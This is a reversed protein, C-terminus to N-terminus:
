LFFISMNTSQGYLSPPGVLMWIELTSKKQKTKSIKWPPAAPQVWDLCKEPIGTEIQVIFFSELVKQM